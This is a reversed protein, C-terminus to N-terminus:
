SEDGFIKLSLRALRQATSGGAEWSARSRNRFAGASTGRVHVGTASGVTSVPPSISSLYGASPYQQRVTFQNPGPPRSITGLRSASYLSIQNISSGLGTNRTKLSIGQIHNDKRDFASILDFLFRFSLEETLIQPM